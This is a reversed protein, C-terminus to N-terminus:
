THHYDPRAEPKPRAKRSTFGRKRSTGRLEIMLARPRWSSARCSGPQDLVTTADYHGFVYAGLALNWLFHHAGMPHLWLLLLYSTFFVLFFAAIRLLAKKIDPETSNAPETRSLSKEM